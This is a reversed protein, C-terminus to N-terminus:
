EPTAAKLVELICRNQENAEDEKVRLYDENRKSSRGFELTYLTRYNQNIVIGDPRRNWFRNEYFMTPDFDHHKREPVKVSIIKWKRSGKRWCNEAAYRSLSKTTGCRAWVVRKMLNSLGSSVRQHKHLKCAPMCIDGSSITHRRSLQRREIASPVTSTGM